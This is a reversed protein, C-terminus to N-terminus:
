VLRQYMFYLILCDELITSFWSKNWVMISHRDFILDDNVLMNDFFHRGVIRVSHTNIYKPEFDTIYIFYMIAMFPSLCLTIIGMFMSFLQCNYMFRDYMEIRSMGNQNIFEYLDCGPPAPTKLHIIATYVSTPKKGQM